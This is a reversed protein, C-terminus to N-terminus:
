RRAHFIQAALTTRATAYAAEGYLKTFTTEAEQLLATRLDALQIPTLDKRASLASAKERFSKVKEYGAIATEPPLGFHTALEHNFHFAPDQARQYDAYRKEGLTERIQREASEQNALASPSVDLFKELPHFVAHLAQFEQETAHFGALEDRLWSSTDSQYLDHKRLEDASLLAEIDARKQERLYRDRDASDPLRLHTRRRIDHLHQYDNDISHLQWAKEFSLYSAYGRLKPNAPEYAEGLLHRLETEKQLLFAQAAVPDKWPEDAARAKPYFFTEWYSRSQRLARERDAYRNDVESRVISRIQSDSFGLQRLFTLAPTTADRLTRWDEASFPPTITAFDHTARAAHPPSAPAPTTKGVLSATGSSRSARVLFIANAALSLLLTALLARKM